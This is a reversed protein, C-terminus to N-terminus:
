DSLHSICILIILIHFNKWLFLNPLTGFLSLGLLCMLAFMVGFSPTFARALGITGGLFVAITVVLRIGYRDAAAGGMIAGFIGILAPATFILTYQMHTLGLEPSMSSALSPILYWSWHLCMITAWAIGLIVWRHSPYIAVEASM